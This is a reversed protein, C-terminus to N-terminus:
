ATRSNSNSIGKENDAWDSPCTPCAKMPSLRQRSEASRSSAVGDDSTVWNGHTAFRHVGLLPFPPIGFLWLAAAAKPSM